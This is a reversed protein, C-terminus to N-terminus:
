TPLPESSKCQGPVWEEPLGGFDSAAQNQPSDHLTFTYSNM